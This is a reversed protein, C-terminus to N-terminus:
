RRSQRKEEQGHAEARAEELCTEPEAAKAYARVEAQFARGGFIRTAGKGGRPKGLTMTESRTQRGM